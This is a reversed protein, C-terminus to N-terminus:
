ADVLDGRPQGLNWTPLARVISLRGRVTISGDRIADGWPLVGRHWDVFARLRAVIEAAPEGGPDTVCVEADGGEVLLWFRRNGAREHPFTFAVVVRQQPLAGRNLQVQCWVWLAFGPDTHETRVDVWRDAWAALEGVVGALNRGADANADRRCPL